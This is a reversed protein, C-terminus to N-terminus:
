TKKKGKLPGKLIKSLVKALLSCQKVLVMFHSQPHAQLSLIKLLSGRRFTGLVFDILRSQKSDTTFNMGVATTTANSPSTM